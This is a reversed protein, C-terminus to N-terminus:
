AADSIYSRVQILDNLYQKKTNIGMLRLTRGLMRRVRRKDVNGEFKFRAACREEKPDLWSVMVTIGFPYRM